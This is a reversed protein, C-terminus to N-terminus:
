KIERRMAEKRHHLGFLNLNGGKMLSLFHNSGTLGAPPQPPVRQPTDRILQCSLQNMLNNSQCPIQIYRFRSLKVNGKRTSKRRTQIDRLHKKLINEDNALSPSGCSYLTHPITFFFRRSSSFIKRPSERPSPSEKGLNAFPERTPFGSCWM